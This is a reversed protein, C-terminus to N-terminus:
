GAPSTVTRFRAASARARIVVRTPHLEEELSFPMTGLGRLARLYLDLYEVAPETVAIPGRDEPGVILRTRTGDDVSELMGRTGYIRLQDNGWRGFGPPNLYNATIAALGGNALRAMLTAAMRLEGSRPNGWVTDFAQVEIITQLAVHEVMRVGHVGAQMILGGDVAEDQPRGDHYPYSKQAIVQVVDGLVGSEMVARMARYPQWFATGAQEHFRAPGRTAAAIVRDLDEETMACPKEAYVHKGAALCRLADQAQDARRPSCLSVLEVQPNQLLGDLDPYERVLPDCRQRETLAARPLGAFAVLRALPREDLLSQIQHGNGGYLGIGVPAPDKM